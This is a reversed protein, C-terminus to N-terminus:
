LSEVTRDHDIVKKGKKTKFLFDFIYFIASNCDFGHNFVDQGPTLGPLAHKTILNCM